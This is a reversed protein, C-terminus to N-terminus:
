KAEKVFHGDIMYPKMAPYVWFDSNFRQYEDTLRTERSTSAEYERFAKRMGRIESELREITVKNEVKEKELGDALIRIVNELSAQTEEPTYKNEKTM